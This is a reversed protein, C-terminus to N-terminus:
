RPEHADGLQENFMWCRVSQQPARILHPQASTCQAEAFSCRPHFRCGEPMRYPSPVNGEIADLMNRTEGISPTCNLLGRTYPHKPNEFISYVDGNEVVQGAYMVAVHDAMEAVVGLDHTIIIISTGFEASIGKMLDLIQAQISVDLATTPEDAILLKPNCSLAVAIMVRQRMGGSLAHPYEDYIQGPRGIGVRDLLAVSRRRAEKGGLGQHIRLPESIQEGVTFVPNLSTLPEQFIMALDKGRLDQWSNKGVELLNRDEFLIRGAAVKATRGLLGMIALSTVSKGCGSEGVIALTEGRRLSFSVDDVPVVPGHATAFEVRLNQVDLLKETM